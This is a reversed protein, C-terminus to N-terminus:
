AARALASEIAAQADGTPFPEGLNGFVYFGISRDSRVFVV